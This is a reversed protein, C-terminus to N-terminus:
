ESKKKRTALWAERLAAAAEFALMDATLEVIKGTEKEPHDIPMKTAGGRMNGYDIRKKGKEDVRSIKQIYDKLRKLNRQYSEESRNVRRKDYTICLKKAGPVSVGAKFDNQVKLKKLM